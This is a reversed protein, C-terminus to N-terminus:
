MRGKNQEVISCCIENKFENRNDSLITVSGGFATSVDDIYARIVDSAIESTILIYFTYGTLM